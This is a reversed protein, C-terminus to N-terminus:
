QCVAKDVVGGVAVNENICVMYDNGAGTSYAGNGAADPHNTANSGELYNSIDNKSDTDPNGAEDLGSPDNRTVGNLREASFIVAGARKVGGVSICDGGTTCTVDTKEGPAFNGSVAYFFHDKWNHWLKQEKTALCNSAATPDSTDFLVFDIGKSGEGGSCSNATSCVDLMAQAEVVDETYDENAEATDEQKEEECSAIDDEDNRARRICRDYTRDVDALEKDLEAKADEVAADYEAQCDDCDAVTGGGTATCTFKDLCDLYDALEDEEIKALEKEYKNKADLLDEALDEDCEAQTKEPDDLCIQYDDNAEIVDLRYDALEEALEEIYKEYKKKCQSCDPPGIVTTDGLDASGGAGANAELQTESATVINPLRGFYSLSTTVDMDIYSADDRYTTASLDLEGVPWPLNKKTTANAYVTLCRAIEDTLGQIKTTFDNRREIANWIEDRTITIILDNFPTAGVASNTGAKIISDAQDANGNFVGNNIGGSDDLYNTVTYNGRCQDTEEETNRLQNQVAANPAIVVAVVRDEASEYIANGDANYIQLMGNTDDNLMETKGGVSSTNKYYGSVAYWLCENSEDLLPAIDLTRWPLRGVFSQNRAGSCLNEENGDPATAASIDPCPLFGMEGPNSDVYNVAYAILAKKAKALSAVREGQRVQKQSVAGFQGMFYFAAVSALVVMAILFAAGAQKKVSLSYQKKNKM